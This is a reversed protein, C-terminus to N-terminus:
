KSSSLRVLLPWRPKIKKIVESSFTSDPSLADPVPQFGVEQALSGTAFSLALIVVFIIQLFKRSM